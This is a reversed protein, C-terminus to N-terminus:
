FEVACDFNKDMWYTGQNKPWVRTKCKRYWFGTHYDTFNSLWLKKMVYLGEFHTTQHSIYSNKLYSICLLGSHSLRTIVSAHVWVRWALFVRTNHWMGLINCPANVMQGHNKWRRYEDSPTKSNCENLTRDRSM